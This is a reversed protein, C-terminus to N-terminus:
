CLGVLTYAQYYLGNLQDTLYSYLETNSYKATLFDLVAQSNDTQTQQNALEKAAIDARVKQTLIQRDINKIEYGASNAQLVREQLQRQLGANRGANSAQASLDTAAVQIGRATAAIANGLNSGGWQIAAGIGFPMADAHLDPLAHLIAGATEVIGATLQTVQAVSARSVEENEFSSLKLGSNDVPAEIEDPLETFDTGEGPVKALKEGILKLQHQLRYVPALRSQELAEIASDAEDLQRQRVDTVLNNLTVEHTARLRSLAEADGKEKASMLAGGLAQLERCADLAKSLLYTFRYNPTPANLDALVRSLSLGQAAAEVLLGPDIKAEFLPLPTYVGNIDQCHRIKFLRDDITERLKAVAPDSPICFYLSSASGFINATPLDAGAPATSQNSYPFAVELDVLANSFADWSDLLSNYTQPQTRGRPPIEQGRPGLVHSAVVYCQIASPLTELTNQRFYYDGYAIWANVYAIAAQRKYAVPRGRAVLHPNFPDDRWESVDKDYRNPSLRLFVDDLDDTVDTQFPTFRWVPDDATGKAFPNVVTHLVDLAQDFQKAAVLRDALLMPAHFCMEWGYIAYPTRLEHYTGGDASRGFALDRKPQDLNKLYFDYLDRLKGSSLQGLLEHAFPHYAAVLSGNAPQFDVRGDATEEFYPAEDALWASTQEPLVQLSHLRLLHAQTDTASEYHFTTESVGSNPVSAAATSAM